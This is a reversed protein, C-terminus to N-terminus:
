RRARARRRARHGVAGILLGECCSSRAARRRRDRGDVQLVGIDRRKEMVLMFLTSVINFAAVLVILALIVFMTAKELKM